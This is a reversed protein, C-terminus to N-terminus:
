LFYSGYMHCSQPKRGNEYFFAQLDAELAALTRPASPICPLTPPLLFNSPQFSCPVFSLLYEGNEDTFTLSRGITSLMLNGLM